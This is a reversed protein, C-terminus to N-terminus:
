NTYSGEHIIKLLDEPYSAVPEVDTSAAENQVEINYLRLGEKFSLFLGRSAETKKGATEKGREAMM